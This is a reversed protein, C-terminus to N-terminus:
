PGPRFRTPATPPASVQAPGLRGSRLLDRTTWALRMGVLLVLAGAVVFLGDYGLYPVLAGLVVGSAAVGFHFSGFFLAQVGGRREPPTDSLVLANLSPFMLGHSLGLGAGLLALSGPELKTFAVIVVAYVLLAALSTRAHGWTDGLGGGFVRIGLALVTYGTFLASISSAGRELALAPAFAVVAGFAFGMVASAELCPRLHRSVPSRESGEPLTAARKQPSRSVPFSLTLAVAVCSACAAATYLASWGLRQTLPELLMPAVAQTALMAAGFLGLTRALREPAAINAAFAATGTLTLSFALGQFARLALMRMGPEPTLHFALSSLGLVLAGWRALRAPHVRDALYASLPTALVVSVSMASTIAGLMFGSAGQEALHKPLLLFASVGLGFAFQTGLLRALVRRAAAPALPLADNPSTLISM